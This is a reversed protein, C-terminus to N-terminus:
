PASNTVPSSNTEAVAASSNTDTLTWRLYSVIKNNPETDRGWIAYLKSGDLRTVVQLPTRPNTQVQLLLQDFNADWNIRVKTRLTEIPVYRLCNTAQELDQWSRPWQNSHTNLYDVMLNGTTWAAYSEPIKRYLNFFSAAFYIVIAAAALLLIKWISIPRKITLPATM